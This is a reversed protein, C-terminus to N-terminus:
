EGYFAMKCFFTCLKEVRKKLLHCIIKKKKAMIFLSFYYFWVFHFKLKEHM